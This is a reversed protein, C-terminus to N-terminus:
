GGGMHGSTVCLRGIEQAIAQPNWIGCVRLLKITLVAMEAPTEAVKLQEILQETTLENTM